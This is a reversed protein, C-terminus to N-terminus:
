RLLYAIARVRDIQRSDAFATDFWFRGPVYASPPPSQNCTVSDPEFLQLKLNM